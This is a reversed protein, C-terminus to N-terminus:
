CVEVKWCIRKGQSLMLRSVMREKLIRRRDIAPKTVTRVKVEALGMTVATSDVGALSISHTSGGGETGICTQQVGPQLDQTFLEQRFVPQVKRTTRRCRGREGAVKSFEFASESKLWPSTAAGEIYGSLSACIRLNLCIILLTFQNGPDVGTLDVLFFNLHNSRRANNRFTETAGTVAFCTESRAIRHTTRYNYTSTDEIRLEFM